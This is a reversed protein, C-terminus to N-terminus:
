KLTERRQILAQMIDAGEKLYKEIKEEITNKMLLTYIFTKKLQGTRHVRKLAQKYVISSLPLEYFIVYNAMQLNLGVGGSATNVVFVKVKSDTQFKNVAGVKDKTGGYLREYKIKEKKLRKCVIEGSKIYDLFVVIKSDEPTEEILEVLQDLKPNETFEVEGKQLDEQMFQIYGSCVQRFKNFTNKIQLIDSSDDKSLEEFWELMEPTVGLSTRIFVKDPLDNAESEDYRISLSAVKDNLNGELEKKFKYDTGGFYGPKATFYAERYLYPNSGLTKGLDILYFQSWLDIPDRNLPTGTLGYRFTSNESLKKCVKFTLTKFNKCKHIEDYIVVDFMSAFNSINKYNPVWKNEAKDTLVTLLGTYNIIYIDSSRNLLEVREEKKGVLETYTFDSHKRVEEAFSAVTTVNPSLVLCKGWDAKRYRLVDLVVKSKGLGMDMFYLFNPHILGLILSQWQHLFPKTKVYHPGELWGMEIETHSLKKVWDQREVPKNLFNDIIVQRIL